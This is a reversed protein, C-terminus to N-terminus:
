ASPVEQVLKVVREPVYADGVLKTAHDATTWVVANVLHYHGARMGVLVGEVSEDANYLHLRVKGTVVM